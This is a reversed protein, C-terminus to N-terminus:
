KKQPLPKPVPVPVHATAVQASSAESLTWEVVQPLLNNLAAEFAKAVADTAVSDSRQEAAFARGAVVQGSVADLLKVSVGIVAFPSGDRYESQFDRLEWALTYDARLGTAFDGVGLIRGSRDFAEVLLSRLLSPARDRWRAGKYIQYVGPTPMVLVRNSDLADSAHPAEVLLQFNVSATSAPPPWTLRPSYIQPAEKPESFLSCASLSLAAFAVSPFIRLKM